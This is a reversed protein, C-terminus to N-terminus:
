LCIIEVAQYFYYNKIIFKLEYSFCHINVASVFALQTTQKFKSEKFSCEFLNPIFDTRNMIFTSETM